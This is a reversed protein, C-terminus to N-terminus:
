LFPPEAGARSAAAVLLDSTEVVEELEWSGAELEESLINAEGSALCIAAEFPM